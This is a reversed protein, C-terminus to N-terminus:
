QFTYSRFKFVKKDNPRFDDPGGGAFGGSPRVEITVTYDTDPLNVNLAVSGAAAPNVSDLRFTTTRSVQGGGNDITVRVDALQNVATSLSFNQVRYWVQHRETAM